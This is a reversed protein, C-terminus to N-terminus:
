PTTKTFSLLQYTENNTGIDIKKFSAIEGNSLSFTTRNTLFINGTNDFTITIGNARINLIEGANIASIINKVTPIPVVPPIPPIPQGIFVLKNSKCNITTAIIVSQMIGFTKSLKPNDNRFTNNHCNIGGNDQFGLVFASGNDVGNPDSATVYNNYINVVSKNVSICQGAKINNPALLSGFGSANAFRNNLINISKSSEINGIVTIAVGLNEFWCNDFTINEAYNIRVGYDSDQITCNLFTVVASSMYDNTTNEISVNIWKDYTKVDNTTKTYGDFQCNIFSHQGVQGTMKLANSFLSFNTDNNKFVRVNEFINFQNPVFSASQGSATGGKLYIGNGNFGLININKMTSNWLGGDAVPDTPTIVSPKAEFLFCGKNTAQGTLFYIGVINLNSINIQVIGIEIEFLYGTGQTAYIITNGITEELINVGNKM